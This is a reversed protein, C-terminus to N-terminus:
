PFSLSLTFYINANLNTNNFHLILINRKHFIELLHHRFQKFFQLNIINDIFLFATKLKIQERFIDLHRYTKQEIFRVPPKIIQAIKREAQWSFSHRINEILNVLYVILRKILCVHIQRYVVAPKHRLCYDIHRLISKAQVNKSIEQQSGAIQEVIIIVVQHLYGIFTLSIALYYICLQISIIVTLIHADVSYRKFTYVSVPQLATYVSKRTAIIFATAMVRKTSKSEASHAKIPASASPSLPLFM